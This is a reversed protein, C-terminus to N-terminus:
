GPLRLALVRGDRYGAIVGGGAVPDLSILRGAPLRARAKIGSRDVHLLDGDDDVVLLSADSLCAVPRQGGIAVVVEAEPEGQASLWRLGQHEVVVVPDSCALREVDRRSWREEGVAPDFRSLGDAALVFLAGRAGELALVPSSSTARLTVGPRAAIFRLDGNVGAIAIGGDELVTPGVAQALGVHAFSVIGGRESFGLLTGQGTTVWLRRQRDIVPASRVGGAVSSVWLLTGEADLAYLGNPDAAAFVTGNSAVAPRGILPGRLTYGWRFSGDPRLSHLYGDVSGVVVAGDAGIGPPAALPAGARFSWAITVLQLAAAASPAPRIPLPPAASLHTEDAQAVAAKGLLQASCALACVALLAFSKPLPAIGPRM